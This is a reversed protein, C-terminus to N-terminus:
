LVFQWFQPCFKQSLVSTLFFLNSLIMIADYDLCDEGGMNSEYGWLGDPQQLELTACIAKDAYKIPRGMLIYVPYLHMTGAMANRLESLGKDHFGTKPNINEDCFNLLEEVTERARHDKEYYLKDILLIAVDMMKNSEYWYDSLDLSNCWNRVKRKGLWEEVMGLKKLPRKGFDHLAFLAHRTRHLLARTKLYGACLNKESIDEDEFFGDNKQFGQIYSAWKDKEGQSLRDNYYGLLNGLMEAICSGIINPKNSSSFRFKYKETQMSLLYEVADSKLQSINIM